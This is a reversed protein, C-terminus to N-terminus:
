RLVFFGDGLQTVVDTLPRDSVPIAGSFPEWLAIVLAIDVAVVAVLLVILRGTFPRGVTMAAANVVVALGALFLAFVFLDPLHDSQATVRERRATTLDDIAALMEAGAQTTTGPATAAGRVGRELSQISAELPEPMPDDLTLEWGPGLDTELFRKLPLHAQRAPGEATAWALRASAAAEHAVADQARNWNDVQGVLTLGAIIGFIACLGPMLQGAVVHHNERPHDRSVRELLRRVGLAVGTFLVVSALVILWGPLSSLWAM